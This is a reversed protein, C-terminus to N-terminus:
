PMKRTNDEITMERTTKKLKKIKKHCTGWGGRISQKNKKQKIPNQQQKGTM